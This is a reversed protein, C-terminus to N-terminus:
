GGATSPEGTWAGPAEGHGACYDHRESAVKDIYYEACRAPHVSMVM